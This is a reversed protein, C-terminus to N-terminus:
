IDQVTLCGTKTILYEDVAVGKGSEKGYGSEKIGGFPSDASSMGGTNLGIMGAELKRFMRWLRDANKTFVYSALGMSTENAWTVAEQETKFRILSAVPGFTEEKSVAMNLTVNTLITPKFFYGSCNGIPGGNLAATAGQRLADKVQDVVKAVGRRSAMAGINTDHDTGHGTKLQATRQVFVEVFRDYVVDQVFVRNATVCTQGSNGWKLRMLADVAQDLSADDFVIFPCNGGLELTVKKIGQAAYTAILKGVRTSGTFTIKKVAEHRCIAEAVSPTNELSATIVNLCGKPFGAEYALYAVALTTLPTEPSPKCVVTCGAALAACVKRLLMAVPYNWPALAAVVGIPQKITLTTRPVAAQQMTIGSIREAEGAFWRNFSLAYAFEGRSEALPKGTEYTLVLALDDLNNRILQEWKLLLQSRRAPLSESFAEFAAKSSAIAFDVDSADLDAVTAIVEASGPDEVEFRRKSRAEVWTGDVFADAGFIEPSKLLKLISGKFRGAM